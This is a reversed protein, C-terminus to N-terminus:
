DCLRCKTETLISKCIGAEVHKEPLDLEVNLSIFFSLHFCSLGCYCMIEAEAHGQLSFLPPSFFWKVMHRLNDQNSLLVRHRRHLPKRKV